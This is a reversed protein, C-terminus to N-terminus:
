RRSSRSPQSNTTATRSPTRTKTTTATKPPAVPSFRDILFGGSSGRQSVSNNRVRSGYGDTGGHDILFSFNGGCHPTEHYSISSSAYGQSYNRYRDDGGYDFLIGLGAQSGNGQTTKGNSRYQDNGGFDGLLGISADWAHGIGMITGNYTDDGEDDFCFGAAYHCGFGMGFRQFSPEGRPGGTFSKVTAGLRQDNGGFDRAFGLGLWYGGGHSLYDFEYVDDGDGELMVGIGGSAVSRLGAGVGQGWGEYGPTPNDEDDAYSCIFYGGTYYHDNGRLDALMGFGLPCGMGQTWMAGHYQDDGDRDVLLGIGAFAQGQVRRFGTYRDNGAHDILIGAGGICSAQAMDKGHYRDDGAFDVLMAIGLIAGGQIGPKSGVYQDNGDLDLTILVPRDLSVTGERYVDNGGLDIVVQVDSMADLDYMNPGRGGVVITGAPTVLKQLVTGSVGPVRVNGQEPIQKLREGFAPESLVVMTEAADHIAGRDIKELMDCIRRGAGRNALTYGVDNQSVLLPYINRDLNSLEAATLPALAEAHSRQVRELVESVFALPDDSAAQPKVPLSKKVSVDMKSRAIALTRDLGGAPMRVSEYLYRTFAESEAPANLPNRLLYDFWSLRCNGTVENVHRTGTSLNLQYGTYNQFQVFNRDLNRQRLGSTIENTLVAMLEPGSAPPMSATATASVSAPTESPAVANGTTTRQRQPMSQANVYGGGNVILGCSLVLAYYPVVFLSRESRRHDVRFRRRM